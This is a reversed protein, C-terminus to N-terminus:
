VVSGIRKRAVEARAGFAFHCFNGEPGAVLATNGMMAYPESSLRQQVFPSIAQTGRGGSPSM